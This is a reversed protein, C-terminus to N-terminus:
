NSTTWYLKSNVTIDTVTKLGSKLEPSVNTDRLIINVQDAYEKVSSEDDICNLAEVIKSQIIEVKNLNPKTGFKNAYSISMNYYADDITIEQELTLSNTL